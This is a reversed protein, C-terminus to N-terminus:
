LAGFQKLKFHVEEYDGNTILITKIGCKRAADTNIKQDDILICDRPDLNYTTLLYEYASKDPKIHGIHGSIVIKEFHRFHFRNMRRFVDFSLRDWNSFVFNRNKKSGDRNKAHACAELLKMGADIPHVNRALIEPDFIARITKKILQKERNSEFYDIRALEEIQKFAKKILAPGDIMGAQWQCMAYPLLNGEATGALSEKGRPAKGLHNLVDFLVAEINPNRMDLILYSLFNSLGITRAVGVKDPYYLVGGLDWLLVKGNIQFATLALLFILKKRM